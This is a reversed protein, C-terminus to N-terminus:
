QHGHAGFLFLKASVASDLGVLQRRVRVGWRESTASPGAKMVTEQRVSARAVCRLGLLIHRLIPLFNLGPELEGFAKCVGEQWAPAGVGPGAQSQERKLPTARM